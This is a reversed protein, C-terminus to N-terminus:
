AVGVVHIVFFYGWITQSIYINCYSIFLLALLLISLFAIIIIDYSFDLMVKVYVQGVKYLIM